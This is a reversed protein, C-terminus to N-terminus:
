GPPTFCLAPQSPLLSPCQLLVGLTETSSSCVQRGRPCEPPPHTHQNRPPAPRPARGSVHLFPSPRFHHHPARTPLHPPVVQPETRKGGRRSQPHCAGGVAGFFRKQSLFDVTRTLM